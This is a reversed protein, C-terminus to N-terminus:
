DASRGHLHDQELLDLLEGKKHINLKRYAHRYHTRVTHISIEQREAIEPLTRGQIILKIIEAERLTLSHSAVLNEFSRVFLRQFSGGNPEPVQAADGIASLDHRHGLSPNQEKSYYVAFLLTLFVLLLFALGGAIPEIYRSYGPFVATSIHALASSFLWPLLQSMCYGIAFARFPELSHRSITTALVIWTLVQMSRAIVTTFDLMLTPADSWFLAVSFIAAFVLLIFLPWLFDPNRQKGIISYLTFIGFITCTIAVTMPFVADSGHEVPRLLQEMLYIAFVSFSFVLLFRNHGVLLRASTLLARLYGPSNVPGADGRGYDDDFYEDVPHLGGKEEPEFNRTCFLWVLASVVPLLLNVLLLGLNGVLPHLSAILCNLIASIAIAVAAFRPQQGSFFTGWALLIPTGALGMLTVGILALVNNSTGVMLIAGAGALVAFLLFATPHSFIALLPTRISRSLSLMIAVTQGLLSLFFPSSAMLSDVGSEMFVRPMPFVVWIAQFLFLGFASALVLLVPSTQWETQKQPGEM